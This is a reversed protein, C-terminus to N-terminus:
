DCSLLTGLMEVPLPYSRHDCPSLVSRWKLSTGQPWTTKAWFSEKGSIGGQLLYIIEPWDQFTPYSKICGSAAMAIFTKFSYVAEKWWSRKHPTMSFNKVFFNCNKESRGHSEYASPHGLTQFGSPVTENGPVRSGSRATESQMCKGMRPCYESAERNNLVERTVAHPLPPWSM